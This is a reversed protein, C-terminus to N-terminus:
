HNPGTWINQTDQTTSCASAVRNQNRNSRRNYEEKQALWCNWVKQTQQLPKRLSAFVQNDSL